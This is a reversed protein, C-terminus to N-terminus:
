LVLWFMKMHTSLFISFWLFTMLYGLPALFTCPGISPARYFLCAGYLNKQLVHLAKRDLVAPTLCWNKTLSFTRARHEYPKSIEVFNLLAEM